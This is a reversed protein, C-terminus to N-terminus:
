LSIKDGLGFFTLSKLWTKEFFKKQDPLAMCILMKLDRWKKNLAARGSKVPMKDRFINMLM